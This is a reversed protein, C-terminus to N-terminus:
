NERLGVNEAFSRPFLFFTCWTASGLFLFFFQHSPHDLSIYSVPLPM